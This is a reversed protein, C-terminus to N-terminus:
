KRSELSFRKKLENLEEEAFVFRVNGIGRMVNQGTKPDRNIVLSPASAEVKNLEDYFLVRPRQKSQLTLTSKGFEFFAEDALAYQETGPTNNQLRVNGFFQIKLPELKGSAENFNLLIRDAYIQGYQDSFFIQENGANTIEMFHQDPHMKLTGPIILRHENGCLPDKWLLKSPGEVLISHLKKDKREIKVKGSSDLTGLWDIKVPPHLVIEEAESDVAMSSAKFFLPVGDRQLVGEPEYLVGKSGRLDFEARVCEVKNLLGDPLEQTMYCSSSENSKLSAHGFAGKSSFEDFIAIDSTFRVDEGLGIEVQGDAVLRELLVIHGARPPVFNMEMRLSKLSLLDSKKVYSIKQGEHGHFVGLWQRCGLWAYPATLEGGDKMTISVGEQMTIEYPLTLSETYDFCAEASKASINGLSHDWKFDGSLIMKKGDFSIEGVELKNKLDDEAAVLTFAFLLLFSTIKM